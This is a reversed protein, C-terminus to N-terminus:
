LKIKEWEAPPKSFFSFLFGDHEAHTHTTHHPSYVVHHSSTSSPTSRKKNPARITFGQTHTRVATARQPKSTYQNANKSHRHIAQQQSFRADIDMGHSQYPFMGRPCNKNDSNPEAAICYYQRDLLHFAWQKVSMGSLNSIKSNKESDCM